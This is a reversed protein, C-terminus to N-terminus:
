CDVFVATSLEFTLAVAWGLVHEVAADSFLEDFDGVCFAVARAYDYFTASDGVGTNM